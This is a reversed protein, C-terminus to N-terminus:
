NVGEHAITIVVNASKNGSEVYRHAEAAQELPYSKDIVSKIKGAEILEKIFMLDEQKVVALACIVKKSDAIKTWLMQLMQKMKFSALLYRGKKSLLKKCDSFKSKGLIDFILDFTQGTQTFDERTYDIVKAAGLSKVFDVRPTGCVGTVEAGIHHSALQVAASGIGGSAGLILVKDKKRLNVKRLLKLAMLTGYTIVAAEEFSMNAPKIAVCGDGPLCLYEAYAGMSEGLYGFVPDGKKFLKVSKGVAEIEGAFESGLIQKRPKWFGFMVRAPLMLPLPMNFRHRPMYRFNRATLDGYNVSTARVRVLIERDRPIPKEVERLQLVEPLGYQEYVAARM